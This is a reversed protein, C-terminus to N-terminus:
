RLSGDSLHKYDPARKLTTFDGEIATKPEFPLELRKILQLMQRATMKFGFDAWMDYLRPILECCDDSYLLDRFPFEHDDKHGYLYKEFLHEVASM